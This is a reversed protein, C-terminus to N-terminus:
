DWSKMTHSLHVLPKDNLPSMWTKTMPLNYLTAQSNHVFTRCTTQFALAIQILQIFYTSIVDMSISSVVRTPTFSFEQFLCNLYLAEMNMVLSNHSIGKRLEHFFFICLHYIKAGEHIINRKKLFDSSTNTHPSPYTPLNHHLINLFLVLNLKKILDQPTRSYPKIKIPKDLNLYYFIPAQVALFRTACNASELPNLGM